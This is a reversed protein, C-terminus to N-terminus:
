NVAQATLRDALVKLDRADWERRPPENVPLSARQYMEQAVRQKVSGEDCKRLVEFIQQRTVQTPEAAAVKKAPSIAVSAVLERSRQILTQLDQKALPPCGCDNSDSLRSSPLDEMAKMRASAADYGRARHRAEAIKLAAHSCNAAFCKAAIDIQM